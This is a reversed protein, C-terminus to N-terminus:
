IGSQARHSQFRGDCRGGRCTIPRSFYLLRPVAIPLPLILVLRSVHCLRCGRHARVPSLFRDVPIPVSRVRVLRRSEAPSVGHDERRDSHTGNWPASDARHSQVADSGRGRFLNASLAASGNGVGSRMTVIKFAIPMGIGAPAGCAISKCDSAIPQDCNHRSGVPAFQRFSARLNGSSCAPTVTPCNESRGTVDRSWRGAIKITPPAKQPDSNAQCTKMPKSGVGRGPVTVDQKM